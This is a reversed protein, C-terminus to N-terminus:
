QNVQSLEEQVQFGYEIKQMPTMKSVDPLGEGGPGSNSVRDVGAVKRVKQLAKSGNDKLEKILKTQDEVLATKISVLFRNFGAKPDSVDPAWDLRKDDIKLGVTDVFNVLQQYFQTAQQDIPQPQIQIKAQPGGKELRELRRTVQENEPLGAISAEDQNQFFQNLASVTQQMQYNIQNIKRDMLSQLNSTGQNFIAEIDAKSLPPVIPEGPKPESPEVAPVTSPEEVVQQGKVPPKPLGDLSPVTGEVSPEPPLEINRPPVGANELAKAIIANASQTPDSVM